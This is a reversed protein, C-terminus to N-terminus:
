PVTPLAPASGLNQFTGSSDVPDNNRTDTVITADRQFISFISTGTQEVFLTGQGAATNNDLDGPVDGGLLLRMQSTATGSSRVAMDHAAAPSSFTNGQITAQFLTAGRGSIDAGLATGTTDTFSSDEVLLKIDKSTSDFTDIFLGEGDNAIFNSGGRITVDGDTAGDHFQLDFARGVGDSNIDTNQVLLGFSGAGTVDMKVDANTIDSNTIRMAFNSADNDATVDIGRSAANDLNLDDITIDMATAGASTHSVNVGNGGTADVVRIHRLDVNQVNTLVIADGTTTLSGGSNAAGGVTGIQVQGGAQTAVNQMVIGNTNGSTVNVHDFNASSSSVTMNDLQLGVGDVVDIANTGGATLTVGNQATLGDDTVNLVMNQINTTFTGSGGAGDILVGNQTQTNVSLHNFNTSMATANTHLIEVADTGTTNNANQVTVGNLNVNSNVIRVGSDTTGTIIGGADVANGTDGITITGTTNNTLLLGHDAAGTANVSEFDIAGITMGEIDVGRGGTTVVKNNFGTVSLTGGGTAVFGNGTTTTIDLQGISISAGTNSTMTVANNTGTDLDHTGLLNITGATNNAVLIGENDDVTANTGSFSVSGGAINHVHISRGTTDGANTASANTIDGAYSITGQGGSVEFDTGGFEKILTASDFNITANSNAIRVGQGGASANNGDIQANNVQITGVDVDDINLGFATQSNLNTDNVTMTLAGTTANGTVDIGTGGGNIELDNLNVTMPTNTSKNVVVGTVASTNNIRLGSITTNASNEVVIADATGGEITGSDGAMDGVTGFLIPGGTNTQVLIAETAAGGATRNVESFNVGTPSITMGSVQAIRGTTTTIKNTTNDATLTGGGTALFGGGTTTTIDLLGGFDITTGTNNTLTVADNAATMLTLDGTFLASGGVNDHIFVGSGGTDMVDGLLTVDAGTKMRQIEVSRGTDNTIDASMTVMGAFENAAGGDIEFATGDISDFTNTADFTFTGASDNLLAVGSLTGNMLTSNTTNLTGNFTNARIGGALGAGGDYDLNDVTVAIEMAISVMDVAFGTNQQINTDMVVLDGSIDNFHLVGDALTGGGSGATTDGNTYSSITATHGDHTNQLRVGAGNGNTSTVNTISITEQLTVNSSNVDTATFSDIDIDDGGINDFTVNNISVSGRVVQETTNGDQDLDM